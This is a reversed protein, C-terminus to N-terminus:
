SACGDHVYGGGLVLPRITDGQHIRQGCETCRGDYRAPFAAGYEAEDPDQIGPDDDIEAPDFDLTQKRCHACMAPPLDSLVCRDETATM